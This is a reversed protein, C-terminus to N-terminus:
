VEFGLCTSSETFGALGSALVLLANRLASREREESSSKETM